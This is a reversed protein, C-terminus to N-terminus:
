TPGVQPLLDSLDREETNDTDIPIPADEDFVWGLGLEDFWILQKM